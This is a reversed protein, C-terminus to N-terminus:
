SLEVASILEAIEAQRLYRETTALSEHRLVRQVTRVSVGRDLMNTACTRRLVHGSRGDWGGLKVGAGVLQRRVQHAIAERTAGEFMLGHLRGGIQAAIFPLAWRPVPVVDVNGGKGAVTFRQRALDIDEVLLRACDVARLASGVMLAVIARHRDLRLHDWLRRMEADSLSRPASRPVKPAVLGVMPDGELLGLLRLHSTFGRVASLHSRATAPRHDALTSWWDVMIVPTLSSPTVDVERAFGTLISRRQVRTSEAWHRGSVYSEVHTFM